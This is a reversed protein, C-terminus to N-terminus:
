RCNALHAAILDLCRQPQEKHPIHGCGALIELTSPGNVGQAITQPNLASGYEDEDGHIVLTPCQVQALAARLSWHAFAPSLWTSTWAHLVWDAKTGHYKVLRDMATPQAFQAQAARIGATTRDEVHSQAALTILASCEAPHAAAACVAMGGGVSHGLAVFSPIGLYDRVCALHHTAEDAIFSPPLVGPHPSSQGFGLRDYAVVTRGTTRALQQPFDRWLTVCGLSDHLLVIPAGQALDHTWVQAFLTGEPVPIHHTHRTVTHMNTHMHSRLLHSILAMSPVTGLAGWDGLHSTHHSPQLPRLPKAAM